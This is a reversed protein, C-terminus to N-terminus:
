PLGHRGLSRSRGRCQGVGGPDNRRRPHLPQGRGGGPDWASRHRPEHLRGAAGHIRLAPHRDRLGLRLADVPGGAGPTDATGQMTLALTPVGRVAVPETFTWEVAITEGLRYFRRNRPTSVFAASAFKLPPVMLLQSLGYLPKDVTRANVRTNSLPTAQSTSLGGTIVSGGGDRGAGGLALSHGDLTKETGDDNSGTWISSKHFSSTVSGTESTASESDWTGDLLDANNDAVRTNSNLWYIPVGTGTLGANDRADVAETSAIARFGDKFARIASFTRAGAADIVHQNYDAIAASTANRKTSSVFLLRFPQERSISAPKLAWDLPVEGMGPNAMPGVSPNPTFNPM